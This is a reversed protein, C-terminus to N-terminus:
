EAKEFLCWDCSLKWWPWYTNCRCSSSAWTCFGVVVEMNCSFILPHGLRCGCTACKDLSVLSGQRRQLRLKWMSEPNMAVAKTCCACWTKSGINSLEWCWGEPQHQSSEFMGWHMKDELHSPAHNQVLGTLNITCFLNDVRLLLQHCNDRNKVNIVVCQPM